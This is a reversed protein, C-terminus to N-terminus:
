NQTQDLSLMQFKLDFIVSKLINISDYVRKESIEAASHNMLNRTTALELIMTTNQFSLFGQKMLFVVREGLDSNYMRGFTNIECNDRLLNNLVIEMELFLHRFYVAGYEDELFKEKEHESVKINILNEILLILVPKLELYLSNLEDYNTKTFARNHAVKCRLDYVKKWKKHLDEKTIKSQSSFFKDWNSIPILKKIDELNLEERKSNFLTDFLKDKQSQYNPSMLYNALQIFDLNHLFTDDSNSINSKKVDSPLREKKWELGVNILMFKTILKRMLSEIEFIKPYSETSYYLSVDDNLIQPSKDFSATIGRIKRLLNEFILLNAIAVCKVTLHFYYSDESNKVKGCDLEFPFKISNFIINKQEIKIESDSEIFHCFTNKDSCKIVSCDNFFLYEVTLM